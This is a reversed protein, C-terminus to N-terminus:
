DIFILPISKFRKSAKSASTSSRCTPRAALLTPNLWGAKLLAIERSRARNSSGRNTRVACPMTGVGPCLPKGTRYSRGQSLKPLGKFSGLSKIWRGGRLLEADAQTVIHFQAQNWQKGTGHKRSIQLHLGTAEIPKKSNGLAFETVPREIKGDAVKRPSRSSEPHVTGKM